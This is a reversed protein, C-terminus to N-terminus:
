FNWRREDIFMMVQLSRKHVRWYFVHFGEAEKEELIRLWCKLFGVDLHVWLGRWVKRRFSLIRIQDCCLHGRLLMFVLEFCCIRELYSQDWLNDNSHKHIDGWLRRNNPNKTEFHGIMWTKFCYFQISSWCHSWILCFKSMQAVKPLMESFCNKVLCATEV